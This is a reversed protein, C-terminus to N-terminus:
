SRKESIQGRSSMKYDKIKYGADIHEIRLKAGNIGHLQEIRM